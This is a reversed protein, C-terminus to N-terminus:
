IRSKYPIVLACDACLLKAENKDGYKVARIWWQPLDSHIASAKIDGCVSCTCVGNRPMPMSPTRKFAHETPTILM